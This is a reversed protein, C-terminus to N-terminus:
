LFPSRTSKQCEEKAHLYCILTGQSQMTHSHKIKFSPMPIVWKLNMFFNNFSKQSLILVSSGVTESTARFMRSSNQAVNKHLTAIEAYVTIFFINILDSFISPWVNFTKQTRFHRVNLWFKVRHTLFFCKCKMLIWLWKLRQNITFSFVYWIITEIIIMFIQHTCM